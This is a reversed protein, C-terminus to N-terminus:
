SSKDLCFINLSVKVFSFFRFTSILTIILSLSSSALFNDLFNPTSIFDFGILALNTIASLVSNIKM